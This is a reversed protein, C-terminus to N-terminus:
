CTSAGEGPPFGGHPTGSPSSHRDLHPGRPSSQRIACGAGSSAPRGSSSYHSHRGWFLKQPKDPPLLCGQTASAQRGPLATAGPILHGGPDPAQSGNRQVDCLARSVPSFVAPTRAKGPSAEKDEGRGDRPPQQGAAEQGDTLPAPPALSSPLGQPGLPLGLSVGQGWTDESASDGGRTLVTVPVCPGSLGASPLACNPPGNGPEAM